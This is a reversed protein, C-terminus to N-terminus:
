LYDELGLDRLAASGVDKCIEHTDKARRLLPELGKELSIPRCLLLPSVEPGYFIRGLLIHYLEKLGMCM